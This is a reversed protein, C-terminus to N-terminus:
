ATKVFDYNFQAEDLAKQTEHDKKSGITRKAKDIATATQALAKNVQSKWDSLYSAGDPGHCSVCASVDARPFEKKAYFPLSDQDKVRHCAGCDVHARAM